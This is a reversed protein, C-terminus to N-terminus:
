DVHMKDNLTLFWSDLGRPYAELTKTPNNTNKKTIQNGWSTNPCMYGDWTIRKRIAALITSYKRAPTRVVGM